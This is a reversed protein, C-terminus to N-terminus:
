AQSRGVYRSVQAEPLNDFFQTHRFSYKKWLIFHKINMFQWIGYFKDESQLGDGIGVYKAM